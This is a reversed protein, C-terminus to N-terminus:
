FTTKFFSYVVSVMYPGCPRFYKSNQGKCLTQNMYDFYQDALSLSYLIPKFGHYMM